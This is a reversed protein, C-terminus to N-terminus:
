SRVVASCAYRLFTLSRGCKGLLANSRVQGSVRVVPLRNRLSITPRHKRETHTRGGTTYVRTDITNTQRNYRAVNNDTFRRDVTSPQRRVAEFSFTYVSSHIKGLTRQLNKRAFGDITTWMVLTTIYM